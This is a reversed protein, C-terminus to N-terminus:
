VFWKQNPNNDCSPSKPVNTDECTDDTKYHVAFDDYNDFLLGSSTMLDDDPDDNFNGCLGEM